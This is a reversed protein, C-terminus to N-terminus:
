FEFVFAFRYKRARLMNGLFLASTESADAVKTVACM